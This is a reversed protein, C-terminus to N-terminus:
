YDQKITFNRLNENLYDIASMSYINETQKFITWLKTRLPFTFAIDFNSYNTIFETRM